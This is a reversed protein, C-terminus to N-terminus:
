ENAAGDDETSSEQDDVARRLYEVLADGSLQADLKIMRTPTWAGNDYVVYRFQEDPTYLVIRGNAIFSRVPAGTASTLGARPLLSGGIRGPKWIRVHSGIKRPQLKVRTMATSYQAGFAIEVEGANATRAMAMPPHLVDVIDEADTESSSGRVAALAILNEVETSVHKG